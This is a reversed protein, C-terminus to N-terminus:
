PLYSYKQYHMWRLPVFFEFSVCFFHVLSSFPGCTDSSVDHLFPEWIKVTLWCSHCFNNMDAEHFEVYHFDWLSQWWHYQPKSIKQVVRQSLILMTLAFEAPSVGRTEYFIQLLTRTGFVDGGICPSVCSLYGTFLFPLCLWLRVTCVVTLRLLTKRFWM